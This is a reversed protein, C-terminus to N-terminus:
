KKKKTEDFKQVASDSNERKEIWSDCQILELMNFLKDTSRIQRYDRIM